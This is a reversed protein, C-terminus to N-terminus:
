TILYVILIINQILGNRQPHCTEQTKTNCIYIYILQVIPGLSMNSNFIDIVVQPFSLSLSPLLNINM